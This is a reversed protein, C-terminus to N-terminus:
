ISRVLATVREMLIVWISGEPQTVSRNLHLWRAREPSAATDRLFFKGSLWKIFGKNVLNTGELHSSVKKAHKYVEVEDREMFVCFLFKVVIWGNRGCVQGIVWIYKM